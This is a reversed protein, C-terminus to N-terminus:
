LVFIRRRAMRRSSGLERVEFIVYTGEDLRGQDFYIHSKLSGDAADELLHVANRPGQQSAGSILSTRAKPFWDRNRVETYLEYSAGTEPPSFRVLMARACDAIPKRQVDLAQASKRRREEIDRVIQWGVGVTAVLAGFWAAIVTLVDFM